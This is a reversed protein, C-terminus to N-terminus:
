GSRALCTYCYGQRVTNETTDCVIAAVGSGGSRETFIAFGRSGRFGRSGHFGCSSINFVIGKNFAICGLVELLWSVVCVVKQFCGRILVIGKPVGLGKRSESLFSSFLKALRNCYQQGPGEASIHRRNLKKKYLIPPNAWPKGPSQKKQPPPPPMKGM